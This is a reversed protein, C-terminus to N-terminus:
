TGDVVALYEAVLGNPLRGKSSVPRGNTEAWRRM